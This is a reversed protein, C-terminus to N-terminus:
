ARERPTSTRRKRVIRMRSELIRDAVTVAKAPGILKTPTAAGYMMRRRSRVESGRTSIGAANRPPAANVAAQSRRARVHSLGVSSLIEVTVESIPAGTTM